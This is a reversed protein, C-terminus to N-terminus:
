PNRKRGGLQQARKSIHLDKKFTELPNQKDRETVETADLFRQM